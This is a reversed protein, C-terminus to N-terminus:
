NIYINTINEWIRRRKGLTVMWDHKWSFIKYDNEMKEEIKTM